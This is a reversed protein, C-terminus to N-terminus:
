LLKKQTFRQIKENMFDILLNYEKGTLCKLLCETVANFTFVSNEGQFYHSVAETMRANDDIKNRVKYVWDQLEAVQRYYKDMRDHEARDIRKTLQDISDNFDLNQREFTKKLLEIKMDVTSVTDRYDDISKGFTSTEQRFNDLAEGM